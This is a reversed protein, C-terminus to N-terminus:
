KGIAPPSPEDDLPEEPERFTALPDTQIILVKLIAQLCELPVDPILHDM